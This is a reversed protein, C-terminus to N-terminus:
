VAYGLTVTNLRTYFGLRRMHLADPQREMTVQEDAVRKFMVAVEDRELWTERLADPM